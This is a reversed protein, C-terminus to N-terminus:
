NGLHQCLRERVTKRVLLEKETMMNMREFLEVNKADALKDVAEIGIELIPSEAKGSRRAM